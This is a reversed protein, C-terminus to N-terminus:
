QIYLVGGNEIHNEGPYIGWHATFTADKESVINISFSLAQDTEESRLLYPSYYKEDGMSIVLYGSASGKPLTLSVTYEGVMDELTVPAQTDVTTITEEAGDKYVAVALLCSGSTRLTSQQSQTGDYFWAYTGSSFVAFCSLVSLFACLLLRAFATLHKARAKNKKTKEM